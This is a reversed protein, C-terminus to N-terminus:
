MIETHTYSEASFLLNREIEKELHSKGKKQQELKNNAM